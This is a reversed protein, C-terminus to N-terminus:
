WCHRVKGIFPDLSLRCALAEMARAATCCECCIVSAGFKVAALGDSAIFLVSNVATVLVSAMTSLVIGGRTSGMPSCEGWCNMHVPLEEMSM